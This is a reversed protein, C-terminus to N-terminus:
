SLVMKYVIVNLNKLVRLALDYDNKEFQLVWAMVEELSKEVPWSKVVSSIEEIRNELYKPYKM